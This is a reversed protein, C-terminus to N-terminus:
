GATVASLQVFRADTAKSVVYALTTKGTGPPGRLILRPRVPRAKASEGVLRRLPSGPKLLHQQGVVEDLVRPRM